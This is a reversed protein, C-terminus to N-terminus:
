GTEEEDGRRGADCVVHRWPLVPAHGGEGDQSRQEDGSVYTVQKLHSYNLASQGNSLKIQLISM